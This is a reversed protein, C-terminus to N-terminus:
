RAMREWGGVGWSITIRLEVLGGEGVASSPPSPHLKDEGAAPGHMVLTCSVQDAPAAGGLFLLPCPQGRPVLAGRGLGPGSSRIDM